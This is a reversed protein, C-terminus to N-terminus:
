IKMVIILVVIGLPLVVTPSLPATVQKSLSFYMAKLFKANDSLTCPLCYTLLILILSQMAPIKYVDMEQKNNGKHDVESKQEKFLTKKSPNNNARGSGNDNYKGVTCMDDGEISMDVEEKLILVLITLIIMGRGM